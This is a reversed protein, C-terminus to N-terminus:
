RPSHKSVSKFVSLEDKAILIGNDEEIMATYPRSVNNVIDQETITYTVTIPSSAMKYIVVMSEPSGSLGLLLRVERISLANERLVILVETEASTGVPKCAVSQASDKAFELVSLFDQPAYFYSSHGQHLGSVSIGQKRYAAYSWHNSKVSIVDSSVWAIREGVKAISITDIVQDGSPITKEIRYLYTFDSNRHHHLFNEFCDQGRSCSVIQFVFPLLWWKLAIM